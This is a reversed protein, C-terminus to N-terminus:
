MMKRYKQPTMGYEKKFIEIFSKVNPFGNQFAIESVTMETVNLDKVASRLRRSDLYEKYAAGTAQRFKRSFYAPSFGVREAVAELSLPEAYNEDIFRVAEQISSITKKQAAKEADEKRVMCNRMLSSGIGLLLATIDMEHCFGKEEYLVGIRGTMDAVKATEEEGCLSLDFRLNERNGAYRLLFDYDWLITILELKREPLPVSAPPEGMHIDESNVLILEGANLVTKKGNVTFEGTGSLMLNLEIDRHWHLPVSCDMGELRQYKILAPIKECHVIEEKIYNRIM